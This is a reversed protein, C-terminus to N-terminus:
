VARNVICVIFHSAFRHYHPDFFLSIDVTAARMFLDDVDSGVDVVFLEILTKEKKKISLSVLLYAAQLHRAAHRKSKVPLEDGAVLQSRVKLGMLSQLFPEMRLAWDLPNTKEDSIEDKVVRMILELTDLLRNFPFNLLFLQVLTGIFSPAVFLVAYQINCTRRWTYKFHRLSVQRRRDVLETVGIFM